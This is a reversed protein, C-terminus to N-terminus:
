NMSNPNIDVTVSLDSGSKGSNQKIIKELIPILEDARECKLWIRYRHRGQIKNIPAETGGYVCVGKIKGNEVTKKLRAATKEAAAAAEAKDSSSFIINVIKCFPPYCFIRRYEIEERYFAKYDQRAACQIVSNEPMYTQVVARGRKDGRGARGCVQTILNFTRENARFDDMNLSADAALVGVLTVGSFDLGKAVMQTGLLRDINDNKFSE